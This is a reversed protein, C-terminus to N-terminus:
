VQAGYGAVPLIALRNEAGASKIQSLSLSLLAIENATAESRNYKPIQGPGFLNFQHGFRADNDSKV